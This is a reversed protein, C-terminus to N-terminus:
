GLGMAAFFHSIKEKMQDITTYRRDFQDVGIYLFPVGLDRCTERMLSISAAGDKHGMHGPVVVCDISYGRVIRRIDHLFNDAVGRAQRIMPVDLLNRKALDRFMTDETSTNILTYPCYSFMDMAVCVGWEQEMWPALLSFWIPIVDFWLVRIRQNPVEGRKERVRMEADAVLDRFFDTMVPYGCEPGACVGFTTQALLYGHPAPVARRLENWEMWLEYQRNSEECVERLRDIDLKKGTHGELFAVMRGLEDAFYRISREDQWYPADPSFVPVDQWERHRRIAEHLGTVGDCPESLTVLATPLPLLGADVYYLGLRLLTCVDNAVALKDCAELDEMMHINEGAGGFSQAILCFWHIDMATFIEPANTFYSAVLPKGQEVCEITRKHIRLQSRLLQAHLHGLEGPDADIFQLAAEYNAVDERTRQLRGETIADM